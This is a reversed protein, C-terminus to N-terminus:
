GHLSSADRPYGSETSTARTRSSTSPAASPRASTADKQLLAFTGHYGDRGPVVQIADDNPESPDSAPTPATLAAPLNLLGYGSSPDRGPIGIDIDSNRLIQAVQGADLTPRVDLDLRRCGLRDADRLENRGGAGLGDRRHGSRRDRGPDTRRRGRARRVLIQEVLACGNWGARDRRRHPRAPLRGSLQPTATRVTTGRSTSTGPSSAAGSRTRRKGSLGILSWPRWSQHYPQRWRAPITARSRRAALPHVFRPVSGTLANEVRGPVQFCGLLQQPLGRNLGRAVHVRVPVDVLQRVRHSGDQLALFHIMGGEILFARCIAISPPPPFRVRMVNGGELTARSPDDREDLEPDCSGPPRVSPRGSPIKSGRLASRSSMSWALTSPQSGSDCWWGLAVAIRHRRHPEEDVRRARHRAGSPSARAHMPAEASDALNTAKFRADPHRDADASGGGHPVEPHRDCDRVAGVM